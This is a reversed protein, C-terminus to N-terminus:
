ASRQLHEAFEEGAGQVAMRVHVLETALHDCEGQLASCRRLLAEAVAAGGDDLRLFATERHCRELEAHLAQLEAALSREEAAFRQVLRQLGSAHPNRESAQLM